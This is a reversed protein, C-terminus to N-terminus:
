NAYGNFVGLCLRRLCDAKSTWDEAALRRRAALQEGPVHSLARKLVRTVFQEASDVVDLCDQWERTSPLRSVVVPKGTALYEKLKLPQMARTVAMDAYPMILVDAAAAALPLERYPVPGLQAIRPIQHLKPSPNQAPGALVISGREMRRGLAELWGFDLRADILGWFLVIPRELAAIAPMRQADFTNCRWHELDVGHTIVLPERGRERIRDALHEGAAVICDVSDILKNELLQLTSGDLGPWQSFDDVCYYIWRSASFSGVLDAVIPVTTLV